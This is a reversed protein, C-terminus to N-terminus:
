EEEETNDTLSAIKNEYMEILSQMPTAFCVVSDYQVVIEKDEVLLIWPSLTVDVQNGATSDETLVLPVRSVTVKHPDKLLYGCVREDQLVEKADSIVHDGTKLVALKITM